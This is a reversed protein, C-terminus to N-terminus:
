PRMEPLARGGPDRQEGRVRYLCLSRLPARLRREARIGEVDRDPLQLHLPFYIFVDPDLARLRTIAGALEDPDYRRNMLGLVRRAASQVPLCLYDVRREAFFRELGAAHRLFLSPFVTYLKYRMDPALEASGRWCRRSIRAETSSWVLRLRRRPADRNAHRFAYLDRVESEITEEPRSLVSGKVKKINCYSCDNVCGQAILVYRITPVSAPSTPFM